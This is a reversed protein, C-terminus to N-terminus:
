RQPRVTNGPTWEGEIRVEKAFEPVGVENRNLHSTLLDVAAIAIRDHRQSIGSWGSETPGLDVHAMGIDEPIRRGTAEIWARVELNGCVVVDPRHEELWKTFEHRTTKADWHTSWERWRVPIQDEAPLDQLYFDFAAAAEGGAGIEAWRNPWYGPRRYGLARLEDLLRIMNSYGSSSVRHFPVHRIGPIAIQRSVYDRGVFITALDAFLPAAQVLLNQRTSSVIVCGRIGRARFVRMMSNLRDLYRSDSEPEAHEFLCFEEAFYGLARAREGFATIMPTIWPNRWNHPPSWDNLLAIVSQFSAPRRMRVAAWHAALAPNPRYGLREACERIRAKTADSIRPHNRLALSVTATSM